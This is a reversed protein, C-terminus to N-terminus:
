KLRAFIFHNLLALEGIRRTIIHEKIAVFKIM